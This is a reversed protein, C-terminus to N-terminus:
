KKIEINFPDHLPRELLIAKYKKKAIEIEFISNPKDFDIKNNVYGFALNKMYMFSYNGSTTEGVIKGEFYIPEDHLLLPNGPTSDELEFMLLKKKQINKNNILFEKGIFNEKKNLKLQM